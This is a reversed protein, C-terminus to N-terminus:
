FSFIAGRVHGSAGVCESRTFEAMTEHDYSNAWMRSGDDFRVILVAREPGDHGYEVTVGDITVPGSRHPDSPPPGPDRGDLTICRHPQTPPTTSYLGFSQKSAQGGNGHVMGRSGPDARLTRVMMVLSQGAAFNMPAGAFCLGGTVTLRRDAPLGFLDVTHSVISPFCGYLDLHDIDSPPGWRTRLTRGALELAGVHHIDRRNLQSDTDITNVTDHVYVRQERPTRLRDAIEEAAIVVAAAQDVQNNACMAKTYPWSVMRNRPSPTRIAEASMASRDAAHPNSEAVAAFGACLNAARDRAADLTEGKHARIASDLVAYNNRPHEGGRQSVVGSGMVLPPGWLEPTTDPQTRRPLIAGRKRLERRTANTEGGTLVAVDIQGHRIRDALEGVFAIPIQGGWTTLVTRVRDLNEVGICQGLLNGPNTFSFLGAAVAITDIAALVGHGSCDAVADTVAARMVDIADLPTDLDPIRHSVQAVGIIVPTRPHADMIGLIRASGTRM